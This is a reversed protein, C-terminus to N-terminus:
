YVGERLVGLLYSLTVGINVLINLGCMIVLIKSILYKKLGILVVLVISIIFFPISFLCTIVPLGIVISVAFIIWVAIAATIYLISGKGKGIRVLLTRKGSIKDTDYDPFENLLIVNFITLGVPISMWNILNNIEGTQLYYSVAIPLWGYCFGIFVEGIGRTVWRLPPTSYFFGMFVGIAGLPITLVGTKYYFQLIFGIIVAFIMSIYAGIRAYKRPLMKKIVARSGGAFINKHMESSLRDEAIDYYEGNYYTSLMIFIVALVSLLFVALNFNGTVKYALVTGLAFPAIGVIHFPLRSMTVWGKISSRFQNNL